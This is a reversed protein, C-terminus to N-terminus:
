KKELFSIIKAMLKANEALVERSASMERIITHRIDREIERAANVQEKIDQTHREDKKEILETFSKLQAYHVDDKEKARQSHSRHQLYMIYLCIGAIGLNPISQIIVSEM